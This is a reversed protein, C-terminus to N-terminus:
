TTAGDTDYYKGTVLPEGTAKALRLRLAEAEISLLELDKELGRNQSELVGIRLLLTPIKAVQRHLHANAAALNPAQTRLWDPDTVARM